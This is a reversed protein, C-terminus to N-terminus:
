NVNVGGWEVAVFGNRNFHTLKEETINIKSNVKKVHIIVRLLSDPKPSINIKNYTEVEDTLEFYVLSRGNNELVPLWYMIFENRECDNLGIYTLKDELFKIADDKTVYFGTKFDVSHVQKEDWYLAYYYKGNADYLSGDTKAIVNWEKNFKPYTTKLYESHAFSVKINEEKTPYLYLIPKYVFNEVVSVISMACFTILAVLFLRLFNHGTKKRTEKDKYFIMILINLVFALPISIFYILYTNSIFLHIKDTLTLVKLYNAVGVIVYFLCYIIQFILCGKIIKEGINLLKNKNM